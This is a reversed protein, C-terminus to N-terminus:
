LDSMVKRAAADGQVRNEGAARAGQRDQAPVAALTPRRPDQRVPKGDRDRRPGPRRVRGGQRAVRLKAAEAKRFQESLRVIESLEEIRAHQENVSLKSYGVIDIFLVHAIELEIEQKVEVPMDTSLHPSALPM